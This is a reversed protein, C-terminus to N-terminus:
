VFHSPGSHRFIVVIIMDM